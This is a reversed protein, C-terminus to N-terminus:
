ERKLQFRESDEVIKSESYISIYSIDIEYEFFTTICRLSFASSDAKIPVAWNTTHSEKSFQKAFISFTWNFILYNLLYKLRNQM